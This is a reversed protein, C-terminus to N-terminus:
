FQATIRGNPAMTLDQGRWDIKRAVFSALFVGFNLCDALPVLWLPASRAGAIADVQRVLAFRVLVAAAVAAAGETPTTLLALLAPPLPSTFILGAYGAPKIDRLTAAWRVLHRWVAGLSTEDCGHTILMPPIAVQLGLAHVAEGIAYDDALVDRYADFGGIAGLTQRTMAITSGMCPRALGFATAIVMGPLTAYSITGACVQSWIGADARGRYLCSVAGVGPRALEHLVLALYDPGVAMDSDSLVLVDHAAAPMMAALNGLKGNSAPLVQGINVTIDARPYAARLSAVSRLAADGPYNMGCLMQVPGDHDAGLFSALNEALRPEAGHLPKLLTVPVASRPAPRAAAFFRRMVVLAFLQYGCGIVALGLPLWLLARLGDM